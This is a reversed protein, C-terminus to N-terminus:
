KIFLVQGRHSGLPKLFESRKVDNLMKPGNPSLRSMIPRFNEEVKKYQASDGFHTILIIKFWGTTDAPAKILEYGSVYGLKLAEERFAKWNHEYFFIAEKEYATKANVIDVTAIHQSQSFGTLSLALFAITPLLHKRHDM